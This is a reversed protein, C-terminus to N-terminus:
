GNLNYRAHMIIKEVDVRQETGDNSNLDWDGVKIFVDSPREGAMCHSATVAWQPNIISGGCFFQGYKSFLGIQWPWAGKTANSGGIVRSQQVKVQGCFAENVKPPVPPITPAVTPAIIAMFSVKFGNGNMSSDSHFVLSLVNSKSIYKSASSGCLRKKNSSGDDIMLYDYLCDSEDEVDFTNFTLQIVKGFPVTIKTNCDMNNPYKAPYGPSTVVGSSATLDPGCSPVATTTPTATTTPLPAVIAMFSVKFGNGNVSSDSQFVLNLVNSKSIYTSASYGCLRKRDSGDVIMLYDYSCDDEEEVDFENFTLQIVKGIPVTIKTNCDADNPYQAPYGPSTVVGSSATLNKNCSPPPTPGQNFLAPIGLCSPLFVAVLFCIINKM